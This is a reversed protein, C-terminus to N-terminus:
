SMAHLRALQQRSLPKPRQRSSRLVFLKRSRSRRRKSFTPCESSPIDHADMVHERSVHLEYLELSLYVPDDGVGGEDLLTRALEAEAVEHEGEEGDETSETTSLSSFSLQRAGVDFEDDEEGNDNDDLEPNFQLFRQETSFKRVLSDMRSLPVNAIRSQKWQRSSFPPTQLSSEDDDDDTLLITSEEDMHDVDNDNEDGTAHLDIADM